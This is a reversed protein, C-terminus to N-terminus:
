HSVYNLPNVREGNIRVEFHLHPGTSNGTSGVLAITQGQSVKQGVSVKLQSCHAYLTAVGNGHDVIVYRGYGTTTNLALIVKGSAAAVVNKGYIGGGTIDIGRHITGWRPGYGSSIYTSCGQVPWIMHIKSGSGTSGDGASGGTTTGSSGNSSSGSNNIVEKIQDDLTNLADENKKYQAILDSEQGKLEEILANSKQILVDLDSQKQTIEAKKDLRVAKESDLQAKAALVLAKNDEIAQKETELSAKTQKLDQVIERVQKLLTSDHEAVGKVLEFRNLFDSIDSSTLLIELASADGAIYLARLRQKLLDFVRNFETEQVQIKEQYSQIKQNSLAIEADLGQITGELEAIKENYSDIEATLLTLEDLIAQMQEELEDAEKQAASKDSRIDDLKEDLNKQAQEIEDKKDELQSVTAASVFGGSCLASFVMSLVLMVALVSRRLPNYRM